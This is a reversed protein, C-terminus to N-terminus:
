QKVKVAKAPSEVFGSVSLPRNPIPSRRDKDKGETKIKSEKSKTGAGSTDRTSSRSEKRSVEVESDDKTAPEERVAGSEKLQLSRVSVIQNLSESSM